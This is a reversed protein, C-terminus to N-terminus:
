IEEEGLWRFAVIKFKRGFARNTPSTLSDVATEAPESADVYDPVRQVVAECWAEAVSDGTAPNAKEGYARIVFTDSRTTILPGIMTLLDAQKIWGPRYSDSIGGSFGENVELDGLMPNTSTLDGSFSANVVEDLAEQLVGARRNEEDQSQFDRNVFDALSLFPGREKVEEVIRQALSELNDRSIVNFGAWEDGEGALPTPMGLAPVDLDTEEGDELTQVDIGNASALIAKWAEVSTSNVNFPGDILLGAAATRVGRLGERNELDQPDPEGYYAMRPNPLPQRDVLYERLDGDGAFNGYGGPDPLFVDPGNRRVLDYVPVSSFFWEDWLAENLPWVMDYTFKKQVRESFPRQVRLKMSLDTVWDKEEYINEHHDFLADDPVLHTPMSNGVMFAPANGYVSMNAHQLQGLSLLPQRPVHFLQVQDAGAENSNGWFGSGNIVPYGAGLERDTLLVFRYMHSENPYHNSLQQSSTIARPNMSALPKVMGVEHSGSGGQPPFSEEQDEPTRMQVSFGFLPQRNNVLSAYDFTLGEYGGSGWKTLNYPNSTFHGSAFFERYTQRYGSGFTEVGQPGPFFGTLNMDLLNEGNFRVEMQFPNLRGYAGLGVEVEDAPSDAYRLLPKSESEGEYSAQAPFLNGTDAFYIDYYRGGTFSAATAEEGEAVHDSESAGGPVGWELSNGGASSLTFVKIEGPDLRGDVKLSATPLSSRENFRYHGKTLWDNLSSNHKVGSGSSPYNGSKLDEINDVDDLDWAVFPDPDNAPAQNDILKFLFRFGGRLKTADAEVASGFNWTFDLSDLDIAVDHPNAVTVFMQNELRLGYGSGVPRASLYFNMDWRTIVPALGHTRRNWEPDRDSFGEQLSTFSRYPIFNFRADGPDSQAYLGKWRILGRKNHFENPYIAFNAMPELDVAANRKGRTREYFTYFDRLVDWSPGLVVPRSEGTATITVNASSGGPGAYGPLTDFIYRKPLGLDQWTEFPDADGDTFEEVFLDDGEDTSNLGRDGLAATLDRRLGGNQADAIVGMSFFGLDHYREGLGPLDFISGADELLALSDFRTAKQLSERFEAGTVSTDFYREKFAGDIDAVAEAGLRPAVLLRSLEAFVEGSEIAAIVTEAEVANLKAKVSEDGAWWAFRDTSGPALEVKPAVVFNDTNEGASGEGVLIVETASSRRNIGDVTALADFADPAQNGSVLWLQNGSADTIPQPTKQRPDFEGSDLVGANAWATVWNRNPAFGGSLSETLEATSTGRQDTGVSRQLEGIAIRLGLLANQRAAMISKRNTAADTEVRLISAFSIVLVLLFAMLSLAIVLAFASKPRPSDLQGSFATSLKQPLLHM